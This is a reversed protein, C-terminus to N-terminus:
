FWFPLKEFTIKQFTLRGISSSSAISSIVDWIEQQSWLSEKMHGLCFAILRLIGRKKAYRQKVTVFGSVLQRFTLLDRAEELARSQESCADVM